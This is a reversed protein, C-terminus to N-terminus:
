NEGQAMLSQVEEVRIVEYGNDLANQAWGRIGKSIEDMGAAEMQDVMKVYESLVLEGNANVLRNSMTMLNMFFTLVPKDEEKVGEQMIQFMEATLQQMGTHCKDPTVLSVRSVFYHLIIM